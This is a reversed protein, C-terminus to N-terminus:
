AMQLMRLAHALLWASQECANGAKFECFDGFRGDAAPGGSDVIEDLRVGGFGKAIALGFEYRVQLGIYDGRAVWAAGELELRRERATMLFSGYDVRDLDQIGRQAPQRRIQQAM